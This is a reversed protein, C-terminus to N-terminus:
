CVIVLVLYLIYFLHYFSFLFYSLSYHEFESKKPLLCIIVAPSFVGAFLFYCYILDM